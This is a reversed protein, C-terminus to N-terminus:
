RARVSRTGCAQTIRAAAPAPNTVTRGSLRDRRLDPRRYARQLLLLAALVAPALVFAAFWATPVGPLLAIAM